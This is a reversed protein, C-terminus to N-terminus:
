KGEDSYVHEGLSLWSEGLENIRRRVSGPIQGVPLIMPPIPRMSEIQALREMYPQIEELFARHKKAIEARIMSEEDYRAYDM